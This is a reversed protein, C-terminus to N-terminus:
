GRRLKKQAAKSLELAANFKPEAQIRSEIWIRLDNRSFVLRNGFRQCPIKDNATLKYITSKRVPYGLDQNLFQFAGDLDCKDPIDIQKEHPIGVAEYITERIMIRLCEVLEEYM